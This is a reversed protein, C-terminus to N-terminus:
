SWKGLTKLFAIAKQDASAHIKRPAVELHKEYIPWQDETLTKEVEYMANLDRTYDPLVADELPLKMEKRAEYAKSHAVFKGGNTPHWMIGGGKSMDQWGFIKSIEINQQVKNM